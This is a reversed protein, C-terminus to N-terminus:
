GQYALGIFNFHTFGVMENTVVNKKEVGVYLISISYGM